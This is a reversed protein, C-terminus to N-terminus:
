PLQSMARGRLSAGGAVQRVAATKIRHGHASTDPGGPGTRSCIGDTGLYQLLVQRSYTTHARVVKTAGQMGEETSRPIHIGSSVPGEWLPLASDTDTGTSTGTARDHRHVDARGMPQRLVGHLCPDWCRLEWSWLFTTMTPIHCSAEEARVEKRGAVRSTLSVERAAGRCVVPVSQMCPRPGKPEKTKRLAGQTRVM